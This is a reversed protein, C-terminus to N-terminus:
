GAWPEDPEDIEPRWDDGALIPMTDQGGEALLRQRSHGPDWPWCGDDDRWILQRARVAGRAVAATCHHGLAEKSVPAFALRDDPHGAPSFIVGDPHRLHTMGIDLLGQATSSLGTVIVSTRTGLTYGFHYEGPEVPFVGVMTYGNVRAAADLAENAARRREDFSLSEWGPDDWPSV